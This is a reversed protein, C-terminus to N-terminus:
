RLRILGAETPRFGCAEFYLPRLHPEFDVHLWECGALAAENMGVQILDTALGNRQLAPAVMTDLAFAHLHGDWAVNLFGVLDDSQRACVWGLSFRHVQSHWDRDLADSGFCAARLGNIESNQFPARWRAVPGVVAGTKPHCTM